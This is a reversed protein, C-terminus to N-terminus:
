PKEAGFGTRACVRAMTLWEVAGIAAFILWLKREFVLVLIIVFTIFPFAYLIDVFRMMFADLRRGALGAVLGYAVGIISAVLTAVFGVLLSIRGGHLSARPSTAGSPTPASGTPFPPAPPRSPSTKIMRGTLPAFRGALCLLLLLGLFALAAMAIHQRRLRQWAALWPGPQPAPAAPREAVVASQQQPAATSM